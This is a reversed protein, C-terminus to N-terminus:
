QSPRHERITTFLKAALTISKLVWTRLASNHGSRISTAQRPNASAPADPRHGQPNTSANEMTKLAESLSYNAPLGRPPFAKFSDVAKSVYVSAPVLMFQKDQIWMAYNVSETMAREFPDRHLNEIRPVRLQTFPDRWLNCTGPDARQEAFTFKWGKYRLALLSTDDGFYLFSERPSKGWRIIAKCALTGAAFLVLPVYIALELLETGLFSRSFGSEHVSVTVALILM